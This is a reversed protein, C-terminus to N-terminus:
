TGKPFVIKPIHFSNLRLHAENHKCYKCKDVGGCTQPRSMHAKKLAEDQREEEQKQLKQQEAMLRQQEVQLDDFRKQKELEARTLFPTVYTLFGSSYFTHDVNELVDCHLFVIITIVAIKLKMIVKCGTHNEDYYIMTLEETHKNYKRSCPKSECLIRMFKGLNDTTNKSSGCGNFSMTPLMSNTATKDIDEFEFTKSMKFLWLIKGM